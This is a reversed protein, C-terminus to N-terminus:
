AERRPLVDRYQAVTTKATMVLRVIVVFMRV